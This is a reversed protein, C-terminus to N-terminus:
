WAEQMGCPLSDRAEDARMRLAMTPQAGQPSSQCKERKGYDGSFLDGADMLVVHPTTTNGNSHQQTSSTSVPSFIERSVRAEVVFDEGIRLTVCYHKPRIRIPVADIGDSQRLNLSRSKEGTDALNVSSVWVAPFTRHYRQDEVLKLFTYNDDAKGGLTL